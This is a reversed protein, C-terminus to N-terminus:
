WLDRECLTDGAGKLIKKRGAEKGSAAPKEALADQMARAKELEATYNEDEAFLENQVGFMLDDINVM